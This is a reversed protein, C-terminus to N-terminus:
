KKDLNTLTTLYSQQRAANAAFIRRQFLEGVVAERRRNGALNCWPVVTGFKDLRESMHCRLNWITLKNISHNDKYM